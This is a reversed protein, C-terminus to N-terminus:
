QVNQFPLPPMEWLEATHHLRHLVHMALVADEFAGHLAGGRAPLGFHQLVADLGARQGAHRRRFQEMTCYRGRGALDPQGLAAFEQALMRTDFALNHAVLVRNRFMARLKDAHAAFPLQRALFADALGHTARAMPHSPRGPNFVLHIGPGSPRLGADLPIAALSVVRDARSVGTTETDFVVAQSRVPIYAFAMNRAPAATLSM